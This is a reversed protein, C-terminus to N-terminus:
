GDIVLPGEDQLEFSVLRAESLTAGELALSNEIEPKTVFFWEVLDDKDDYPDGLINTLGLGVREEDSAMSITYQIGYHKSM